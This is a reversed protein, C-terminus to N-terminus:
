APDGGVQQDDRPVSDEGGLEVEISEQLVGQDSSLVSNREHYARHAAELM